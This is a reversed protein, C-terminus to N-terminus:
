NQNKKRIKKKIKNNDKLKGTKWKEDAEKKYRYIYGKKKKKEKKKSKENVHYLNKNPLINSSDGEIPSSENIRKNRALKLRELWTLKKGNGNNVDILENDVKGNRKKRGEVIIKQLFYFMFRDQFIKFIIEDIKKMASFLNIIMSTLFLALLVLM